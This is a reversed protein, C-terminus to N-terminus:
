LCNGWGALVFALDAGDVVGSDDLDNDSERSGWYALIQALDIGDVVGDDNLDGECVPGSDPEYTFELKPAISGSNYISLMGSRFLSVIVHTQGSSDEFFTIPLDISHAMSNSFYATQTQSPANFTQLASSMGLAASNTQRLRVTASGSDGSQKNLTLRVNLLEAGAPIGSLPFIWNAVDRGGVCYGGMEECTETWIAGSSPSWADLTCCDWITYDAYLRGSSTASVTVQEEAIALSSGLLTLSLLALKGVATTM